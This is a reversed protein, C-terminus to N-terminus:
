PFCAARLARSKSLVPSPGLFNPAPDAAVVTAGDKKRPKSETFAYIHHSDYVKQRSALLSIPNGEGPLEQSICGIVRAEDVIVYVSYSRGTIWKRADRDCAFVPQDNGLIGKVMDVTFRDPVILAADKGRLRLADFFAVGQILMSDKKVPIRTVNEM